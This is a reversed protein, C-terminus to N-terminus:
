EEKKVEDEDGEIDTLDDDEDDLVLRRSTPRCYFSSVRERWFVECGQCIQDNIGARCCTPVNKKCEQCRFLAPERVLFLGEEEEIEEFKNRIKKKKKKKRTGPEQKVPSYSYTSRIGFAPVYASQGGCRRVRFSHGHGCGSLTFLSGTPLTKVTRHPTPLTFLAGLPIKKVPRQPAPFQRRTVFVIKMKTPLNIGRLRSVVAKQVALQAQKQVGDNLNFRGRQRTRRTRKRAPPTRTSSTSPRNPTQPSQSKSRTVVPIKRTKGM